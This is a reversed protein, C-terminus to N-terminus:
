FYRLVGFALAAVALVIGMRWRSRRSIDRLIRSEMQGIRDVIRTELQALDAKTVFDPELAAM